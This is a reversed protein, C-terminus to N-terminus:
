WKEAGSTTCDKTIDFANYGAEKKSMKCKIGNSNILYKDGKFDVPSAFAVWSVATPNTCTGAPSSAPCSDNLAKGTDAGDRVIIRYKEGKAQYQKDFNRYSLRKAKWRETDSKVQLLLQKANAEAGKEIYTNYSPIAIVMFIAIIIIVGMLELLTFGHSMVKM